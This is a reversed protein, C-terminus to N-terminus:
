TTVKNIPSKAPDAIPYRNDARFDLSEDPL